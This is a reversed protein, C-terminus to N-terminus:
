QRSCWALWMGRLADELHRAFRPADCLPSALLQVRLGQRLRALEDLDSAFAAAKAVYDEEDAAIWDPLGLSHLITEGQHGIFRDGKLTLVPVGMWLGEISTTGGPYPFPDLAIDVQNYARFYDIRSSQGEMLLRAAAIGHREFLAVMAAKYSPDGFQRYKLFLRSGQVAHLLRSWCAIVRANLKAANNFCGFTVCGNRWAPLEGVPLEYRPPAFCYYSDPLRWPRETFHSEESAPLVWRDALIWDIAEVGTTAFYGLWAAQVPAPRLAFVPLRNHATHGALDVLVDVHDARIQEALQQDTLTGVDRWVPLAKKLREAQGDNLARTSYAILEIKAPDITEVPGALFYGVPHRGLDGSVLGVRLPRTPDPPNPWSRYPNARARVQVDYQRAERLMEASSHDLHYNLAFLFESFAQLNDPELTLVKRYHQVAVAHAGSVRCITALRLHFAAMRGAGDDEERLIYETLAQDFSEPTDVVFGKGKMADSLSLLVKTDTPNLELARLGEAIAEDHRGLANLIMALSSHALAYDPQHRLAQQEIALAEDLRGVHFLALGLCGYADALNPCFRIAKRFAPIAEENRGLGLLASGLNHSAQCSEPALKLARRNAEVAETLRGQQELVSGLHWHAEPFGTNLAIAQRYASEAETLSGLAQLCVGLNLHLAPVQPALKLANKFANRADIHRGQGSQAVGLLYYGEVDEPYRMTLEMALLSADALRGARLLAHGRQVEAPPAQHTM